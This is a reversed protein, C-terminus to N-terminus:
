GESLDIELRVYVVYVFCFSCFLQLLLMNNRLIPANKPFDRLPFFDFGVSAVKKSTKNVVSKMKRMIVPM